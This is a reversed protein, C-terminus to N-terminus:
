LVLPLTHMIDFVLNNFIDFQYLAHLHHLESTGTFGTESAVKRRVSIRDEQDVRDMDTISQSLIRQPWIHKHHYRYNGYYLQTGGLSHGIHICVYLFKLLANCSIFKTCIGTVKDRRCASFGGAGLFKGIECQAPHDGTWCLLLCRIVTPGPEINAIKAAYNM